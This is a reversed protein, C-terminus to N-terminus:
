VRPNTKAPIREAFGGVEKNGLVNIPRHCISMEKQKQSMGAKTRTWAVGEGRAERDGVGVGLGWGGVRFGKDNMDMTVIRQENMKVVCDYCM